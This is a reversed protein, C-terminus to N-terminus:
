RGAAVFCGTAHRTAGGGCQGLATRGRGDRAPLTM